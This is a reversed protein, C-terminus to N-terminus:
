PPAPKATPPRQSHFAPSVKARGAPSPPNASAAEMYPLDARCRLGAPLRSNPNSLVLRVRFSNSAADLVRDVHRVTAKVSEAGPLEPQIAVQDGRALRGYHATPVLLEVRLPDIVAIRLMPREEVREGQNVYREVVVGAFPSRVTRLALQADAVRREQAWIRQQSDAQNLKQRALETEGRAQELAQASLFNQTVLAEARRAKHEALELSAKAALVDADVRARIDAVGANAREVDARLVLLPQGAKVLDGREVHLREVVGIVQSGIDAVRDPEILCGVSKPPTPAVRAAPAAAFAAQWSVLGVAAFASIAAALAQRPAGRAQAWRTPRIHAVLQQSHTQMDALTLRMESIRLRLFRPLLLM